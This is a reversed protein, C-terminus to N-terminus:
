GNQTNECTKLTIKSLEADQGDVLGSRLFLRIKKNKVLRDTELYVHFHIGDTQMAYLHVANAPKGNIKWDAPNGVDIADIDYQESNFFAVLVRDSATRIESFTIWPTEATSNNLEVSKCSAFQILVYGTVLVIKLLVVYSKKNM